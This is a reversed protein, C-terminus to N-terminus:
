SRIRGTQRESATPCGVERETRGRESVPAMLGRRPACADISPETAVLRRLPAWNEGPEANELDLLNGYLYRVAERCRGPALAHVTALESVGMYGALSRFRATRHPVLGIRRLRAAAKIQEWDSQDPRTPRASPSAPQAVASAASADVLVGGMLVIVVVTAALMRNRM